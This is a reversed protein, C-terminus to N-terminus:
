PMVLFAAEAIYDCVAGDYTRDAATERAAFSLLPRDSADLALGPGWDMLWIAGLCGAPIPPPYVRDLGLATVVASAQWATGQACDGTCTAYGLSTDSLYGLVPQDKSGLAFAFGNYALGTGIPLQTTTWSAAKDCASDCALYYLYKVNSAGNPDASYMLIRPAGKSTIAIDTVPLEPFQVSWLVESQVYNQASTCDGKCEMWVVQAQNGQFRQLLQLDDDGSFAVTGPQTNADGFSLETWSKPDEPTALTLKDVGRMVSGVTTM